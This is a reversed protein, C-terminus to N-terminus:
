QARHCVLEVAVAATRQFIGVPMHPMNCGGNLGNRHLLQLLASCCHCCGGLLSLTPEKECQIWAWLQTSGLPSPFSNPGRASPTALIPARCKHDLGSRSQM